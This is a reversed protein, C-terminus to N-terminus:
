CGSVPGHSMQTPRVTLVVVCVNPFLCWSLVFGFLFSLESLLFSFVFSFQCVKVWIYFQIIGKKLIIFSNVPEKSLRLYKFLNKIRVCLWPFYINVDRLWFVACFYLMFIAFLDKSSTAFNLYRPVVSVSWFQMCSPILLPSFEPFAQQRETWLRRDEWQQRPVYLNFYV